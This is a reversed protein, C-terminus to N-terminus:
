IPKAWDGLLKKVPRALTKNIYSIFLEDTPFQASMRIFYRKFEGFSIVEKSTGTYSTTNMELFLMNNNLDEFSLVGDTVTVSDYSYFKEKVVNYRTETWMNNFFDCFEDPSIRDECFFWFTFRNYLFYRFAYSLYSEEGFLFQLIGGAQATKPKNLIEDFLFRVDKETFQVVKQKADPSKKHEDNHCITKVGKEFNSLNMWDTEDSLFANTYLWISEDVFMNTCLGSDICAYCREKFDNITDPQTM